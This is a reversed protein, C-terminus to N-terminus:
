SPRANQDLDNLFIEVEFLHRDTNTEVRLDGFSLSDWKRDVAHQWDVQGEGCNQEASFDVVDRLLRALWDAVTAAM